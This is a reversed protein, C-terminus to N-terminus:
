FREGGSLTAHPRMWASITGLGAGTLASQITKISLGDAFDDILAAGSWAPQTFQGPWFHRAVSTKGAGSAGVILGLNWDDRGELPLEVDWVRTLKEDLPVDFM